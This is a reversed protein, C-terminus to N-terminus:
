HASRSHVPRGTWREDADPYCVDNLVQLRQPYCSCVGQDPRRRWTSTRWWKGSPNAVEWCRQSPMPGCRPLARILGPRSARPGGDRVKLALGESRDLIAACVLAEAGSKAMVDPAVEMVATDVRGRGAVLYPEAKMASVARTAFPALADLREPSALRAYITAMARLPIAHVPVGCGDVGVAVPPQGAAAEVWGLIAQQLPHDPETYSDLPWNQAACAVLMGAHKGSCDSNIRRREPQEAAAEEDMPRVAPCRLASEPVGARGLLSRVADLHAPEGNHSACMVAVEADTPGFTMFSLSVSAQLPKMASRAFVIREPNGASALLRGDVGAVAVDGRHVSEEVGSRIVRALPVSGM